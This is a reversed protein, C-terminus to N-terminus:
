FRFKGPAPPAVPEEAKTLDEVKAEVKADIAADKSKAAEVKQTVAAQAKQQAVEQRQREQTVGKQKVTFYAVVIGFIGLIYPILPGIISLIAAPM